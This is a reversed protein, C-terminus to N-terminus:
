RCHFFSPGGVVTSRAGTDGWMGNRISSRSEDVARAFASADTLSRCGITGVRAM